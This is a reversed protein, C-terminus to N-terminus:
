MKKRGPSCLILKKFILNIKKSQGRKGVPAIRGSLDQSARRRAGSLIVGSQDQTQGHYFLSGMCKLSATQFVEGEGQHAQSNPSQVHTYEEMQRHQRFLLLYEIFTPSLLLVVTKYFGPKPGDSLFPGSFMRTCVLRVFRNSSYIRVPSIMGSSKSAM